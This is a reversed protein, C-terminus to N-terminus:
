VCTTAQVWPSLPQIQIRSSSSVWQQEEIELGTRVFVSGPVEHMLIGRRMSEEDEEAFRRRLEALKTAPQIYACTFFQFKYIPTGKEAHTFPNPRSKDCEWDRIMSLWKNRLDEPFMSDFKKNEATHKEKMLLAKLLSRLFFDGSFIILGPELIVLFVLRYGNGTDEELEM